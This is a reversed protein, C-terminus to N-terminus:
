TVNRITIYHAHAVTRLMRSAIRHFGPLYVSETVRELDHRQVLEGFGLRLFPVDPHADARECEVEVVDIEGALSSSHRLRPASTVM